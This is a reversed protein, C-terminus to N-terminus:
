PLPGPGPPRRETAWAPRALRPLSAGARMLLLLAGIVTGLSIALGYRHAAPDFVFRYVHRGPLAETALFGSLNEAPGVRAGDVEVRWGSFYSELLLVQNAEGPPATAEVEFVNPSVIRAEARQVDWPIAKGLPPDSASVLSAFPPSDVLRYIPRAPLAAVLEADEQQPPADNTLVLYEARPHIIQDAPPPDGEVQYDLRPKWYVPDLRLIGQEALTLSIGPSGDLMWVYAPAEVNDVFWRAVVPHDPRRRVLTYLGRNTDFVEQANYALAGLMAIALVLGLSVSPTTLRRGWRRKPFALIRSTTLIRWLEDIGIAALMVLLVTAPALARSTWRFNFLFPFADYAYQFPSHAASSWALYFVFLAGLLGILLRKGPRFALLVLPLAIFPVVGIYSYFEHLFGEPMGRNAERYYTPDSILFNLFSNPMTQSNRLFSDADKGVFDFTQALPILTAASFGLAWLAVAGARRVLRWLEDGNWGNSQSAVAFFIFTLALGVAVYLFYYLLGSFLLLAISLGALAPYHGSKRRLSEIFFGIAFAIFPFAIALQFQGGFVRAALHGNIALMVGAWTRAPWALGLVSALYYGSLGACMVALLVGIKPGNVPGLILGPVSGLPNFLYNAPDGLYPVGTDVYPNWFPFEGHNRIADYANSILGANPEFEASRPVLGADLDLIARTLLYAVSLIVATALLFLWPGYRPADPPPDPPRAM